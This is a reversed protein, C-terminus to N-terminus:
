ADMDEDGKGKVPALMGVSHKYIAVTGGSDLRLVLNYREVKVLEGTITRQWDFSRVLVRRGVLQKEVQSPKSTM